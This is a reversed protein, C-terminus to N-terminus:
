DVLQKELQKLVDEQKNPLSHCYALQERAQQCSQGDAVCKEVMAKALGVNIRWNEPFTQKLQGFDQVADDWYERELSGEALKLLNNYNSSREREVNSAIESRYRDVAEASAGWFQVVFFLLMLSAAVLLLYYVWRPYAKAVKRPAYGENSVKGQTRMQEQVWRKRGEFGKRHKFQTGSHASIKTREMMAKANIKPTGRRTMLQRGKHLIM